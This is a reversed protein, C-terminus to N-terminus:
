SDRYYWSAGDKTEPSNGFRGIGMTWSAALPYCELEYDAPIEKAEAVYLKLYYRFQNPNKGLSSISASVNTYDFDLLIRSNYSSSNAVIKSIDLMADLGTNKEPYLEYVTTDKKPYFKLVM